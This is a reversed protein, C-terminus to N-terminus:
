IELDIHAGEALPDTPEDMKQKASKYAQNTPEDVSGDLEEEFKDFYLKLNAILYDYFIEQDDPDSLLEYHDIIQSEVQKFSEYAVNRGTLDGEVGTGFAVRPDDDVEEEDSSKEADTRIDIFKDDKTPDVKGINVDLEEGMDQEDLSAGGTADTNIRAPTLTNIVANIIHARYSQRQEPNSTLGKYDTEFNKIIKLLLQELVNIGTSKNPTPDVGAVSSESLMSKIELKILRNILSNASKEEKINTRKVHRILRRVNERLLKEEQNM